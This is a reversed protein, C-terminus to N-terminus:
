FIKTFNIQLNGYKQRKEQIKLVLLLKKRIFHSKAIKYVKRSTM